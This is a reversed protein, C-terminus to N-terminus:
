GDFRIAILGPRVVLEAKMTVDDFVIDIADDYREYDPQLIKLLADSLDKFTYIGPELEYTIFSSNYEDLVLRIDDEVLDVATRLFSEFDQFISRNHVALVSSHKDNEMRKRIQKRYEQFIIPGIIYDQLDTATITIDTIGLDKENEDWVKEYSIGGIKSDTFKYLEFKNNEETIIFISNYVELITLGIMWSGEILIPPNFHFTERPKILKFKLTEELKTHTQHILTECIKAISLYLDETENKPRIIKLNM